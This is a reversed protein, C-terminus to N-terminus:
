FEQHQGTLGTTELDHYAITKANCVDSPGPIVEMDPDPTDGLLNSSYSDGERVEQSRTLLKEM